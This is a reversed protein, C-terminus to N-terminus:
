NKRKGHDPPKYDPYKKQIKKTRAKEREKRIARALPSDTSVESSARQTRRNRDDQIKIKVKFEREKM